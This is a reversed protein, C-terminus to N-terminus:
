IPHPPEEQHIKKTRLNEEGERGFCVDPMKGVAYKRIRVKGITVYTILTTLGLMKSVLLIYIVEHGVM